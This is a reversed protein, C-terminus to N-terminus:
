DETEEEEEPEEELDEDSYEEPEADDEGEPEEELDEDSYEEPEGRSVIVSGAAAGAAISGTDDLGELLDDLDEDGYEIPEGEEPIDEVPPKRMKYILFVLGLILLVIVLIVWFLNTKYFPIPYDDKGLDFKALYDGSLDVQESKSVDIPTLYYTTKYSMNAWYDAKPLRFVLTGNKPTMASEVIMGNRDVTVAADKLKVGKSDTIKVTLYHVWASVEETTDAHVPLDDATYVVVSRWIVEVDVVGTALRFEIDGDYDTNLPGASTMAVENDLAVAAGALDIGQGDTVHFTVYYVWAALTWDADDNVMYVDEYVLTNAWLM